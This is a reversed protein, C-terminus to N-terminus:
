ALPVCTACGSACREDVGRSASADTGRSCVWARRASCRLSAVTREGVSDGPPQDVDEAARFRVVRACVIQVSVDRMQEAV